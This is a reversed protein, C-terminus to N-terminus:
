RASGIAEDDAHHFLASYPHFPALEVVEWNVVRAQVYPSHDLRDKLEDATAAELLLIPAQGDSRTWAQRLTQDLYADWAYRVEEVRGARARRPLDPDVVYHGIALFQM